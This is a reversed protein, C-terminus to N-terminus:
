PTMGAIRRGGSVTPLDTDICSRRVSLWASQTDAAIPKQIEESVVSDSFDYDTASLRTQEQSQCPPAANSSPREGM